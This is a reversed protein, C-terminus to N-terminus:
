EVGFLQPFKTVWNPDVKVFLFLHVPVGFLMSLEKRAQEGIRKVMAGQKGVVIRKQGETSVYVVQHLKIQGEPHKKSASMDEWQETEVMLEYPIEHELAMMLAERTIEAALLRAPMDGVEHEPFPWPEEQAQAFMWGKLANVGDGTLASIMFVEEFEYLTSLSSVIELLQNKHVKDIKNLILIARAERGAIGSIINKVEETLGKKVDVLLAVVDSRNMGGWAAKVMSKDLQKRPKFIGPTDILVLQTDGETFIGTVRTRTTQVKPTVISVKAGVLRNTLTSKGANPAGVLTCFLTKQSTMSLFWLEGNFPFDM